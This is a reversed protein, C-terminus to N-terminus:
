TEFLVEKNLLVSYTDPWREIGTAALQGLLSIPKVKIVTQRSTYHTVMVSHKNECSPSKSCQLCNMLSFMTYTDINCLEKIELVDISWSDLTRM